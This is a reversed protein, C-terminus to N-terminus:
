LMFGMQSFAKRFRKQWTHENVARKYCRMRIKEREDENSLYYRVKDLLDKKDNYCIIERGIEFFEELEEMYQVM